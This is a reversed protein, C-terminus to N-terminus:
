HSTGESRNVKNYLNCKGAPKDMPIRKVEKFTTETEELYLLSTARHHYTILM